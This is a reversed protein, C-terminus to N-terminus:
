LDADALNCAECEKHEEPQPFEQYLSGLGVVGRGVEGPSVNPYVVLRLKGHHLHVQARGFAVLEAFTDIDNDAAIAGGCARNHRHCGIDTKALVVRASEKGAPPGGWHCFSPKDLLDPVYQHRNAEWLVLMSAVAESNPCDELVLVNPHWPLVQPPHTYSRPRHGRGEWKHGHRPPARCMSRGGLSHHPAATLM